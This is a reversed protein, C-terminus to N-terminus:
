PNLYRDNPVLPAAGIQGGIHDDHEDAEHHHAQIIEGNAGIEGGHDGAEVVDAGAQLCHTGGAIEGGVGVQRLQDQAEIHQRAAQLDEGDQGEEGM